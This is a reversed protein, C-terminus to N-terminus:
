PALAVRRLQEPDGKWSCLGYTEEVWNATSQITLQVTEHERLPLPHNPKLVGNEYIAQITLTM